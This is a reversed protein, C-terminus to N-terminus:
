NGSGSGRDGRAPLVKRPTLLLFLLSMCVSLNSSLVFPGATCSRGDTRGDVLQRRALTLRSYSAGVYRSLPLFLSRLHINLHSSTSSDWSPVKADSCSRTIGCREEEGGWLVVERAGGGVEERM